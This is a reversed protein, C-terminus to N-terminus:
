QKRNTLYEFILSVASNELGYANLKAALLEYSLFDFPKWSDTLLVIVLLGQDLYQKWKKILRIISYQFGKLIRM